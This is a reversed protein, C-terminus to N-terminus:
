NRFYINTLSSFWCVFTLFDNGLGLTVMLTKAAFMGIFSLEEMQSVGPSQALFQSHVFEASKKNSIVKMSKKTRSLKTM